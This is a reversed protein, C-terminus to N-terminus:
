NHLNSHCTCQCQQTQEFNSLTNNNLDPVPQRPPYAAPKYRTAALIEQSENSNIDQSSPENKMSGVVKNVASELLKEFTAPTLLSDSSPQEEVNIKLDYRRVLEKFLRVDDLQETDQMLNLKSRINPPMALITDRIIERPKLGLYAQKAIHVRKDVFSALNTSGLYKMRALKEVYYDQQNPRYRKLIEDKVGRWDLASIIPELDDKFRSRASHTFTCRLMKKKVEDSHNLTVQEFQDLWQSVNQDKDGSFEPPKVIAPAISITQSLSSLASALSTSLMEALKDTDM